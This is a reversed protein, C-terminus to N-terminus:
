GAFHARKCELFNSHSRASSKALRFVDTSAVDSSDLSSLAEDPDLEDSVLCRKSGISMDSLVIDDPHHIGYEDLFLHNDDVEHFDKLLKNEADILECGSKPQNPRTLSSVHCQPPKWEWLYPLRLIEAAV